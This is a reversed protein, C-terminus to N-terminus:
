QRMRTHLEHRQKDNWPMSIMSLSHASEAANHIEKMINMRVIQTHRRQIVQEALEDLGCRETAGYM